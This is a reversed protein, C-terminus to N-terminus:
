KARIKMASKILRIDKIWVILDEAGGLGATDSGGSGGAWTNGGVHQKDDDKGHKPMSSETRPKSPPSNLQELLQQIREKETLDLGVKDGLRSLTGDNQKRHHGLLSEWQHLKRQLEREDTDFLRVTGNRHVVAATSGLLASGVVASHSIEVASAMAKDVTAKDTIHAPINTLSNEYKSMTNLPITKCHSTSNPNSSPNPIATGGPGSGVGSALQSVELSYAFSGYRDKTELVAIASVASGGQAERGGGGAAAAHTNTPAATHSSVVVPAGIAAGADGRMSQPLLSTLLLGVSGAEVQAPTQERPWVLCDVTNAVAGDVAVPVAASARRSHGHSFENARGCVVSSGSGVGISGAAETARNSTSTHQWASQHSNIATLERAQAGGTSTFEIKDPTLTLNLSVTDVGGDASVVTLNCLWHADQLHSVSHIDLMVPPGPLDCLSELDVPSFTVSCTEAAGTKNDGSPGTFHATGLLHLTVGGVESARESLWESRGQAPHSIYEEAIQACAPMGARGWLLLPTYVGDATAVCVRRNLGDIQEALMGVGGGGAAVGNEEEERGMGHRYPSEDMAGPIGLLRNMFSRTQSHASSHRTRKDGYGRGKSQAYQALFPLQVMQVERSEGGSNSNVGGPLAAPPLYLATSMDPLLLLLSDAQGDPAGILPVLLSHQLKDYLKRHLSPSLLQHRTVNRVPADAMVGGSIAPDTVATNEPPPALGTVSHITLPNQTVIHLVPGETPVAGPINGLGLAGSTTAVCAVEGIFREEQGEPTGESGNGLGLGFGYPDSSTTSSVPSTLSFRGSEESFHFLRSPSLRYPVTTREVGGWPSPPKLMEAVLPKTVVSKHGGAEAGDRIASTTAALPLNISVQVPSPIDRQIALSVFKSPDKLLQGLSGVCAFICVHM